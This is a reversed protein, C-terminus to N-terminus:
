QMNVRAGLAEVTMGLEHAAQAWQLAVAHNGAKTAQEALTQIGALLADMVAENDANPM